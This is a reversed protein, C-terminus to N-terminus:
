PVFAGPVPKDTAVGFGVGAFGGASQLLYWVGERFVAINTKGDGDYDAAVPVDGAIGFHVAYFGQTSGLIYWIGSRYVAFDGKADGDFDGVVPNDTANGFQVAAFGQSSQLLYWIGDRYVAFDTKGDGDFDAPVPKDSSIGFRVAQFQNDALNLTYWIGGRYVALEARGDGTYDAPVPVDAAIGFQVANFSGNSSNLWYWVGERFVAIDTKGDGDFDAPVIRDTSVGFQAATFGSSSRLLYWVSNSPRFVSIDAKGDGDFDFQTRRPAVADGIYRVVAFQVNSGTSAIGAAVIKGDSQIAVANAFDNGDSVSTIVKGDEDFTNDLSGDTNYRVLTFNLESNTTSAGSVVIKGNFQIAVGSAGENGSGINTTIKGDGDFSTDPSGDPNYRALAFELDSGNSSAGALVIKGDSQIAAASAGAPNSGFVRGDSDFSNDFSGDPNFRILVFNEQTARADGAVVIKGDSQIVIAHAQRAESIDSLPILVKGDGDFSTDLSGDTNYRSVAFGGGFGAAIIKGDPQIAAAYAEDSMTGFDTTVKGDSDFSTDLSGDPNFRAIAFDGGIVVSGRRGVAIIKGDAQLAVANAVDTTVGFAITVKGDGDFSTDLSGDTNYRALAFDDAGFAASGAVVIKGDSQIAVARAFDFQGGISTIAKGGNGFSMDLSGPTQAWVASQWFLVLLGALRFATTALKLRPRSTNNLTVSFRQSLKNIRM